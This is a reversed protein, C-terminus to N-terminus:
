NQEPLSDGESWYKWDGDDNQVVLVTSTDEDEESIDEAQVSTTLTAEVVAAEQIGPADTSEQEIVETEEVTISLSFNVGEAEAAAMMQDFERTEEIPNDGGFGDRVPAQEHVLDDMAEVDGSEMADAMQYVVGEPGGPTSDRVFLFWGAGAAAVAGAGGIM